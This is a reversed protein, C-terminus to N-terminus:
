NIPIRDSDSLELPVTWLVRVGGAADWDCDHWYCSITDGSVMILELTDEGTISRGTRAASDNIREIRGGFSIATICGRNSGTDPTYEGYIQSTEPYYYLNLMHGPFATSLTEKTTGDISIRYLQSYRNIGDTKGIYASYYIWDGALCFSDIWYGDDALVGSQGSANRWCIGKASQPTASLYFTVQRTQITDPKVYKILGNDVRYLRNDITITGNGTTVPDELDNVFYFANDKIITKIEMEELQFLSSSLPYKQLTYDQMYYISTGCILYDQIDALVLERQNQRLDDPTTRYLHYHNETLPSAQKKLYYTFEDIQQISEKVPIGNATDRKMSVLTGDNWFSFLQNELTFEGTVAYGDAGFYYLHDNVEMWSDTLWAGGATLFKIGDPFEQLGTGETDSTISTDEESLDSSTTSDSSLAPESPTLIDFFNLNMIDEIHSRSPSIREMSFLVLWIALFIFGLSSIVKLASYVYDKTRSRNADKEYFGTEEAIQALITAAREESISPALLDAVPIITGTDFMQSGLQDIREYLQLLFADEDPLEGEDQYLGAYVARVLQWIHKEERTFLAAHQYAAKYTLIYLNEFGEAQGKRASDLAEKLLSRNM